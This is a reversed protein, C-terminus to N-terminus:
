NWDHYASAASAAVPYVFLAGDAVHAAGRVQAYELHSANDLLQGVILASYMSFVSTRCMEVLYRCPRQLLKQRFRRFGIAPRRVVREQRAPRRDSRRLKQPGRPPQHGQPPVAAEVPDFSGPDRRSKAGPFPERAPRAAQRKVAATPVSQRM